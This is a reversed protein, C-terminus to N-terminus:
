LGITQLKKDNEVAAAMREKIEMMFGVRCCTLKADYKCKGDNEVESKCCGYIGLLDALHNCLDDTTEINM